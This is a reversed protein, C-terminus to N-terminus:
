GGRKAGANTHWLFDFRCAHLDSLRSITSGVTSFTEFLAEITSTMLANPIWLDRPIM